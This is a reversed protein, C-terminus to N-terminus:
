QNIEDAPQLPEEAAKTRLYHAASLIFALQQIIGFPWPDSYMILPRLLSVAIHIVSWAIIWVALRALNKRGSKLLLGTVGALIVLNQLVFVTYEAEILILNVGGYNDSWYPVLDPLNWAIQIVPILLAMALLPFAIRRRGATQAADGAPYYFLGFLLTLVTTLTPILWFWFPKRAFLDFHIWDTASGGWEVAAGVIYAIAISKEGRGPPFSSPVSKPNAGYRNQESQGKTCFLILLWIVGVLPILLLLIWRASKGTDHLRRISLALGPLLMAFVYTLCCPGFNPLGIPTRSALDWGAMLDIMVAAGATLTTFLAFYGYEKRRARGSFDAYQRLVNM